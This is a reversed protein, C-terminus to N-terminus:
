VQDNLAATERRTTSNPPEKRGTLKPFEIISPRDLGYISMEVVLFLFFFLFLLVTNRSIAIYM